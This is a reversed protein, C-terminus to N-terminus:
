TDQSNKKNQDMTVMFLLYDPTQEVDCTRLEM